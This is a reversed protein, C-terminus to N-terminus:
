SPTSIESQDQDVLNFLRDLASHVEDIGNKKLSSFLQITLPFNADKLEKQVQLL